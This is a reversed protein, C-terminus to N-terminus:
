YVRTLDQFICSDDKHNRTQEKWGGDGFVQEYNPNVTKKRQQSYYSPLKKSTLVNYEERRLNHQALTVKTVQFWDFFTEM